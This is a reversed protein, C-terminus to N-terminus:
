ASVREGPSRGTYKRVYGDEVTTPARERIGCFGDTQRVLIADRYSAWSGVVAQTPTVPWGSSRPASLAWKRFGRVQSPLSLEALRPSPLLPTTEVPYLAEVSDLLWSCEGALYREMFREAGSTSRGVVVQSWPLHLVFASRVFYPEIGVAHAIRQATREYFSLM